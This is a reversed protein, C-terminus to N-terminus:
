HQRRGQNKSESKEEGAQQKYLVCRLFGATRPNADAFTFHTTQLTRFLREMEIGQM